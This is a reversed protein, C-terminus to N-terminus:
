LWIKRFVPGLENLLCRKVPRHFFTVFCLNVPRLPETVNLWNANDVVIILCNITPTESPIANAEEPDDDGHGSSVVACHEEYDKSVPHRM